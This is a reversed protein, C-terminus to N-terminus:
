NELYNKVKEFIKTHWATNPHLWDELDNNEVIWFLEIFDTNNRLCVKKITENYKKIEENKYYIDKWFVPTTKNEDVNINTLFIIKNVLKDNKSLEILKILNNEFENINVQNSWNEFLYSDNIWISFIITSINKYKEIYAKKFLEYRKILDRTTDWSIWLNAVENDSWKKWFYIKLMNVWGWSEYDRFWEAISDWFVIRKM